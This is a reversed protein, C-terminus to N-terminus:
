DVGAARADDRAPLRIRRLLGFGIRRLDPGFEALLNTQAQDLASWGLSQLMWGPCIAQRMWHATALNALQGAFYRTYAPRQGGDPMRATVAGRLSSWIRGRFSRSQSSRYRLDEGTILGTTLEATNKIMRRALAQAYRRGYSAAASDWSSPTGLVLEIATDAGLLGLRAPGYTRRLYHSWRAEPTYPESFQTQARPDQVVGPLLKLANALDREQYPINLIEVITLSRESQVEAPDVGEPDGRVELSSFIEEIHNMVLHLTQSSENLEVTQAELPFFGLRKATLCFKGPVHLRVTFGGEPGTSTSIENGPAGAVPRVSVNALAVAAKNEDVVRDSILKEPPGAARLIWMATIPFLAASLVRLARLANGAVRGIM